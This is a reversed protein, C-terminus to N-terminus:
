YGPGPLTPPAYSDAAFFEYLNSSLKTRKRGPEIADEAFRKGGARLAALMLHPAHWGRGLLGQVASESIGPVHLLMQAWTSWVLSPPKAAVHMQTWTSLGATRLAQEVTLPALRSILLETTLALYERTAALTPPQAIHFGFSVELESLASRMREAEPQALQSLDGEVLYTAHSLGCRRM